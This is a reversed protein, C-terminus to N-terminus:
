IVLRGLHVILNTPPSLGNTLVASRPLVTLTAPSSFAAELALPQLDGLNPAFPVAQADSLAVTKRCHSSNHPCPTSNGAAKGAHGISCCSKEQAGAPDDASPSCCCGSAGGCLVGLISSHVTGDPCVCTFRPVGSLLTLVTALWVQTALFTGRLAIM